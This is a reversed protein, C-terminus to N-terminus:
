QAAACFGARFWEGGIAECHDRQHGREFLMGAVFAVALLIPTVILRRFM